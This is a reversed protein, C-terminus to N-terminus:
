GLQGIFVSSKTEQLLPKLRVNILMKTAQKLDNLTGNNNVIHATKAVKLLTQYNTKLFKDSKLGKCGKREVRIIHLPYYIALNAIAEAELPNRLDNSIVIKGKNKVDSQIARFVKRIMMLPDIKPFFEFCRVMLDLYTVGPMDPVEQSRIERDELSGTPLDYAYELMRKMPASWKHVICNGVEAKLVETVTDKGAGSNGLIVIISAINDSYSYSM